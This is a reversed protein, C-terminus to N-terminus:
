NGNLSFTIPINTHMATPAGKYTAPKFKPMRKVVRVAERAMAESGTNDSVTVEGVSGDKNIVVDLYVRGSRGALVDDKPYVLNRAVFSFMAMEGGPYEAATCDAPDLTAAEEADTPAKNEKPALKFTLPLTYWVNVPEGNIKGPEFAPMEKVVRVAEADLLPDASRVIHVDSISGDAAVKFQVIPRGQIDREAAEEPYRINRNLWKYLEAEGGPFVPRQEVETYVTDNVEPAASEAAAPILSQVKAALASNAATLVVAILAPVMLLGRMRSRSSSKKTKMMVIRNKFPKYCFPNAGAPCQRGAAVGVLMMQYDTAPIGSAIVRSDAEFEHIERLDRGLLWAAPWYWCLCCVLRSFLVDVWHAQRLHTREHLLVARNDREAESVVIWRGWAFPVLRRSHVVVGNGASRGTLVSRAVGALGFLLRCLCVAAGAWYVVVALAWLDPAVDDAPEADVSAAAPAFESASFPEVAVSAVPEIHRFALAPVILALALVALLQLRNFRFNTLRQQGSLRYVAWLATLVAGSLLSYLLVTM